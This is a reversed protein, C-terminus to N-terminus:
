QEMNDMIESPSNVNFPKTPKEAEASEQTNAQEQIAQAQKAAIEEESLFVDDYVEGMVQAYRRKLRSVQLSEPGFLNMAKTIMNEFVLQNFTDNNKEVPVIEYSIFYDPDDIVAKMLEPDIYTFAVQTGNEKEYELEEDYVDEETKTNPTTFKINNVGKTGDFMTDEIAIAIYDFSM